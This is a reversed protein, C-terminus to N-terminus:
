IISQAQKRCKISFRELLPFTICKSHSWDETKLQTLIAEMRPGLHCFALYIYEWSYVWIEKGGAEERHELISSSSSSSSSFIIKGGFLPFVIPCLNVLFLSLSSWPSLKLVCSSVTLTVLRCLCSVAFFSCTVLRCLCSDAFFSCTVLRCLCCDPFM